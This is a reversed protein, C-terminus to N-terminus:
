NRDSWHRIGSACGREVLMDEIASWQQLLFQHQVKEPNDRLTIQYSFYKVAVRVRDIYSEGSRNTIKLDTTPWSMLFKAAGPAYKMTFMLSANPDAGAELLFEVLDLNTAVGAFCAKHLPARGVSSVANVNAGHEVLQKALILQVEHAAYDSRAALDVM